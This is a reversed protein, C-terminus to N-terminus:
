YKIRQLNYRVFNEEFEEETGSGLQTNYYKKWYKALGEVDNHHPLPEEFRWYFVRCLITAFKLDYVLQEAGYNFIKIKGKRTIYDMVDSFTAPEM